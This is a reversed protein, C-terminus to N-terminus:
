GRVTAGALREVLDRQERALPPKAGARANAAAHAPNGTAPIVVHIRTDSLAWSLLAEAWSEVGLAERWGTERPEPIVAGAGGLPRM